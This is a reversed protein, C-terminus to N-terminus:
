LPLKQNVYPYKIDYLCLGQAPVSYELRLRGQSEMVDVVEQVSLKGKQVFMTMGVILRIMGRLFRNSTIRFEYCRDEYNYTWEAKSVTCKYTKVDSGMKCFPFFDEYNLLVGVAENMVDIDIPPFRYFWSYKVDFPDPEIRLRYIYSRETADFRTHANEAVPFIRHTAIDKPLVHNIKECLWDHDIAEQTDFHYYYGKAHVGADTRGCGLIQTRTKLLRELGDEITQQITIASNKQYQWGSYLTGDYSIEAFYRM